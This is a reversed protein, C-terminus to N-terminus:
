RTVLASQYKRGDATFAYNKNTDDEETGVRMLACFSELGEMLTRHVGQKPERSLVGYREVEQCYAGAFAQLTYRAEPAVLVSPRGHNLQRMLARLEERGMTEPGGTRIDIPIKSAAAKLGLTDYERFHRPPAVYRMSRGVELSADQLLGHLCDGPPGERAWDCIVYLTGAVVQIMVATTWRPESNIVMWVPARDNRVPGHMIFESSFGDFVPQGPRMRLAYALANPFDIRGTPFSLLQAKAEESVNVFVIEGAKFFPQLSQIFTLKGKPPKLSEFNIMTRRKLMEARLPQMIFEKLGTEEIGVTTTDYEQATNFVDKVIEDPMWLHASGKWVVLRNGIWSFVAKGTTAAKKSVHRAPDYAADVRHWTRVIPEYKIWEPRFTKSDPDDAECMYECNFQDMLGLRLYENRREGIWSIPFKDHWTAKWKGPPLYDHFQGEGEEETQHMIPIRVHHWSIDSSIRVIVADPDLRNGIARILAKKDFVPIAAGYLWKMMADRAEKTRVSEEDEIDDFLGFEPRKERHKSGRLSQGIGFARMSVGNKLILHSEGWTPGRVNGFLWDITENNELEWKIAAIKECARPYSAGVIIGNYFKTFLSRIIFCEEAITTKASDRFGEVVVRPRSSHLADIIDYHFNPTKNPHRHEFLVQHALRPNTGLKLLVAEKDEDM